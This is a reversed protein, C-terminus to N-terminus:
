SSGRGWADTSLGALGAITPSVLLVVLTTVLTALCTFATLAVIKGFLLRLRSPEAQVLLRILGNAYDSSASIGWLALAVIGLMGAANQLGAFMGDSAELMAVTVFRVGPPAPRFRGECHPLHDDHGHPRPGGYARDRRLPLVPEQAPHTRLPDRPDRRWRRRREAPVTTPMRTSSLTPGLSRMLQVATTRFEDGTMRLFVEELSKELPRLARLTIGAQAAARNVEAARWRQPSACTKTAPPRRGAEPPLRRRSAASMGPIDPVTEICEGSQAVLEALPGSFLLEGYRIVALTDCAAEIENLLHSSVVVTRGEDGLTRLLSRIEVIGAPDLGNTPEDLVLFEPDPLLAAAIGLRQKMGLSFRAPEKSRGLLGVM